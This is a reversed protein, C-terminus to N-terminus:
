KQGDKKGNAKTEEKRETSMPGNAKRMDRGNPCLCYRGTGNHCKLIGRNECLACRGDSLQYEKRWLETINM